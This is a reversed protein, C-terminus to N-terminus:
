RKLIIKHFTLFEALKIQTNTIVSQSGTLKNIENIGRAKQNAWKGSIENPEGM